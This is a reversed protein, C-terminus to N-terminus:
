IFIFHRSSLLFRVERHFRLINEKTMQPPWVSPTLVLVYDAGAEKAEMNLAKTEKTSQAGTGAMVIVHKFGNQNLTERTTKIALTREEHSLHQAEGNSGQVLIGTVGGQALRLVHKRISSIDLEDDKFFLVAPVYIGPPPATAMNRANVSSKFLITISAAASKELHQCNVVPM